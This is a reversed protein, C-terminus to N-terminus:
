DLTAEFTFPYDLSVGGSWNWIQIQVLGTNAERLTWTTIASTSPGTLVKVNPPNLTAKPSIAISYRGTSPKTVTWGSSGNVKEGSASVAGYIKRPEAAFASDVYSKVAKQSPYKTDSEGLAVSTDKNATAEKAALATKVAKQSPYKTDSNAAMTSDVDKNATAEAGTVDAAVLTVAGKKGAVSTVANAPTSKQWISGNYIVSDGVAFEIAGSGLNRTGAVSVTYTDGNTGVGDALAPTNTSANWLGKYEMSTTPLQAAPVKGSAELSAYGGAVGKNAALERLADAAERAGKEAALEADTAATAADQKAEVEAKSAAGIDAPSLPDTGEAQHSAAHDLPERADSLRADNNAVIGGHAETTLAEHQELSASVQVVTLGSPASTTLYAAVWEGGVQAAMVYTSGDEALEVFTVEGDGVVAQTIAEGVPSLHGSDFRVDRYIGITTGDPFLGSVNSTIVGSM